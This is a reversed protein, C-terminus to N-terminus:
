VRTKKLYDLIDDERRPRMYLYGQATHCGMKELLDATEQDEIGEILIEYGLQKALDITAKVIAQTTPNILIQRSFFKDIKIINIPFQALYALSSYGKGFDDIAIRFGINAFKELTRKSLEPDEMLVSETIELEVMHPQIKYPAFTAMMKDFFHEDYLNKTSINISIPLQYGAEILRKQYELSAHFVYQTMDHIMNTKEIIPIFEDPNIMRKTPHEWRILAELGVVKKTALSIKPQYVLYLQQEEIALGFDMQIDYEFELATQMDSYVQHTLFLRKADRAALDAQIFYDAIVDNKIYKKTAIGYSYDVFVKVDDFHHVPHILSELKQIEEEIHSQEFLLWLGQNHPQIVYADPFLELFRTKYDKLFAFFLESGIVHRMTDSNHIKFSVVTYPQHDKLNIKRLYAITHLGSNPNLTELKILKQYINKYNIQIFGTLLGVLGMMTMRFFWDWFYQQEGTAVVKPMLPGVVIGAIIVLSLGYGYGLLAGVAVIPIYMIHTYSTHDDGINMIVFYFIAIMTLGVILVIPKYYRKYQNIWPKNM